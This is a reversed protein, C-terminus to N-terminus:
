FFTTKKGTFLGAWGFPFLFGHRGFFELDNAPCSDPPPGGRWWANSGHFPRRVRAPAIPSGPFGPGRGLPKRKPCLTYFVLPRLPFPFFIPGSLFSFHVFFAPNLLPPPVLLWIALPGLAPLLFFNSLLPRGKTQKLPPCCGACNKALYRLDSPLPSFSQTFFFAWFPTPSLFPFFFLPRESLSGIRLSTERGGQFPDGFWQGRCQSALLSLYGLTISLIAFFGCGGGPYNVPPPPGRPGESFILGNGTPHNPPTTTFTLPGVVQCFAALVSLVMSQRSIGCAWQLNQGQALHALSLSNLLPPPTLCPRIPFAQVGLDGQL